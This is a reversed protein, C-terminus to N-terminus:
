NKLQFLSYLSNKFIIRNLRASGLAAASLSDNEILVYNVKYDDLLSEARSPSGKELFHMMDNRDTERRAFELYPNAYTIGVSVMKRATTMVPFVSAHEGCLIVKEEPINDLIFQYTGIRATDASFTLAVGRLQLFDPRRVYHPLWAGVVMLLLLIYGLDAFPFIKTAVGAFIKRRCLDIGWGALFLFGYGFFVSQLAKLYVFYHFSPVTLPLLIGFHRDLGVLVSSYLYMGLAMVLWSQVIQRVLPNREQRLFWIYGIGSVLLFISVNQRLMDRWNRWIFISDVFEFPARNVPHLHYKGIIYYLFPLSVFFFPLFAVVGQFFYTRLLPYEGSRVAQYMRKGHMWSMVLLILVTPAAHGLFSIGLSFGLLLFWKLQGTLYAKYVLIINFFFVFQIFCNPFAWASYTATYFPPLMGSALFIYSAVGALAIKWGALRLMMLFFFVPSLLDLYVGARALVIHLPVGTARSILAEITTLLPNYWIFHGTFNPDKGFGENLFGQAFALDRNFDGNCYWTLGATAKYAQFFAIFLLFVFTAGYLLRNGASANEFAAM